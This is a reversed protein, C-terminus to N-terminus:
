QIAHAAWPLVLMMGTINTVLPSYSMPIPTGSLASWYLGPSAHPSGPPASSGTVSPNLLSPGAAKDLIRTAESAKDLGEKSAEKGTEIASSTHEKATDIAKLIADKAAEIADNTTEKAKDIAKGASNDVPEDPDADPAEAAPKPAPEDQARASIQGCALLALLAVFPLAGTHTPSIKV